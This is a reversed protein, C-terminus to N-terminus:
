PLNGHSLSEFIARATEGPTLRDTDITADSGAYVPAREHLLTRIRSLREAPAAAALLPRDTADGIRRLAYEASVDLHIRRAHASVLARNAASLLTGGGLAIVIAGRSLAAQLAASERTRFAAEGEDRFVTPIPRGGASRIIEADLDVADVGLLTALIPAATSKGAGMFGSLCVARGASAFRLARETDRALTSSAPEECGITFLSHATLAQHVLMGLGDHTRFGHSRAIELFATKGNSYLVDFALAGRHPALDRFIDSFFAHDADPVVGPNLGVSTANVILDMRETSEMRGIGFRTGPHLPAFERVIREAREPHRNRIQVSRAGGAAAAFAVARAAGGAGLILVSRDRLSFDADALTRAVGIVDTNAGLLKGDRVTVTNVAGIARAEPSVEDLFELISEKHPLTVNFGRLQSRARAVFAALDGALVHETEYLADGLGHARAFHAHIRPSQSHAIPDGIVRAPKM